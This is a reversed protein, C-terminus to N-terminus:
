YNIYKKIDGSEDIKFFLGSTNLNKINRGMIDIKSKKKLILIIIKM